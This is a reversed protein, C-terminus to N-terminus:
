IGRERGKATGEVLEQEAESEGMLVSGAGRQGRLAREWGRATEEPRERGYGRQGRLDSEGM